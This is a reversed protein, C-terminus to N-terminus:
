KKIPHIKIALNGFKGWAYKFEDLDITKDKEDFWPDNVIINDNEFGVVVIAHAAKIDHYSLFSTDVLVILPIQEDVLHENLDQISMYELLVEVKFNKEDKLFLLNAINTGIPKTKLIKRLYAEDIAPCGLYDLIILASAAVCSAKLEQKYHRKELLIKRM